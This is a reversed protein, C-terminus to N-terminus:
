WSAEDGNWLMVLFGSCRDMGTAGGAWLVCAGQLAEEMRGPGGHKEAGKGTGMM